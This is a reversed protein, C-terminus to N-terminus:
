TYQTEQKLLTGTLVEERCSFEVDGDVGVLRLLLVLDRQVHTFGSLHNVLQQIPPPDGPVIM